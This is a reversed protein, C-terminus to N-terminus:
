SRTRGERAAACARDTSTRDAGLTQATRGRGRFLASWFLPRVERQREAIAALDGELHARLAAVEADRAAVEQAHAAELARRERLLALVQLSPACTHSELPECCGGRGRAGSRAAGPRGSLLILCFGPKWRRGWAV